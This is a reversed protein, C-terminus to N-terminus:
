CLGLVQLEYECGLGREGDEGAGFYEVGVAVGEVEEEDEGGGERM